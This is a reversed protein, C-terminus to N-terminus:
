GYGANDNIIVGITDDISGVQDIRLKNGGHHLSRQHLWYQRHFWRNYRCCLICVIDIFRIRGHHQAPEQWSKDLHLNIM